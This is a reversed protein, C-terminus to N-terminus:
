QFQFFIHCFTYLKTITCFMLKALCYRNYDGFHLSLTNKAAVETFLDSLYTVPQLTVVSAIDRACVVEVVSCGCDNRPEGHQVADSPHKEAM